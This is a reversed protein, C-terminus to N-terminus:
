YIRIITLAFQNIEYMQIMVRSHETRLWTLICFSVQAYQRPDPHKHCRRQKGIEM